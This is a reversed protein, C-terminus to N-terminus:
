AAEARAGLLERQSREGEVVAHVAVERHGELSGELAAGDCQGGLEGALEVDFAERAVLRGALDGRDLVEAAAADLEADAAADGGHAGAGAEGDGDVLDLAGADGDVVHGEREAALGDLDGPALRELVY